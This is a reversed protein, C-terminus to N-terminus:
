TGPRDISNAEDGFNATEHGLIRTTFASKRAAFSGGVGVRRGIERMADVGGSRHSEHLENRIRLPTAHAGPGAGGEGCTELAAEVGM